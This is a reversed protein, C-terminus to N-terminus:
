SVGRLTRREGSLQAIEDRQEVLRREEDQLERVLDLLLCEVDVLGRHRGAEQLFEAHDGSLVDLRGLSEAALPRVEALVWRLLESATVM